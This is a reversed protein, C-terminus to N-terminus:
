LTNLYATEKEISRDRDVLYIFSLSQNQKFTETKFRWFLLVFFYNKKRQFPNNIKKKKSPQHMNKTIGRSLIRARCLSWEFNSFAVDISLIFSWLTARTKQVSFQKSTCKRRLKTCLIFIEDRGGHRLPSERSNKVIKLLNVVHKHKSTTLGSRDNSFQGLVSRM